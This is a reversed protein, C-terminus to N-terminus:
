CSCKLDIPLSNIHMNPLGHHFHNWFCSPLNGPHLSTDWSNLPFSLILNKFYQLPFLLLVQYCDQHATLLSFNFIVRLSLSYSFIQTLRLLPSSCLCLPKPLFFLCSLKPLMCPALAMLYAPNFMFATVTTQVPSLTFCIKLSRGQKTIVIM